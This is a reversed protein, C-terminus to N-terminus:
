KVLGYVVLAAVEYICWGVPAGVWFIWWIWEVFYCVVSGGFLRFVGGFWSDLGGGRDM